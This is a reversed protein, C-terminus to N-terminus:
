APQKPTLDYLEESDESDESVSDERVPEGLLRDDPRSTQMEYMQRFVGDNALLEDHTGQEVLSGQDLVLLLDAKRITSLRHAIMFTTRGAMLRELADLIVAETKSDISSTPEDLILIPADKLFARAVSIRQREGGSLKAGREGLETDYGDPLDTIFDHANAARAAQVIDDMSADLRGYRINDAITGSFLLPDQLVISIQRRLSELTLDRIDVGDLLIRGNQAEYFRPLLSVLTTKGAGTQGVIGIVQGHAAEFSIEKLTEVRDEYSFSVDEFTVRGASREVSIAGPTDKIDIPSDMIEFVMRLSILMDQMHGVTTSISELPKYVGHLYSMVVILQGVSLREEHIHYFGVGLVLAAGVATITDVCLTFLAQRVTIRVRADLAREGQERYRKHEHNERGFAIIVRIMSLAEHIIGLTEGEMSRVKYLREQIYKVYYRVSFYLFPVVLLSLLALQWDLCILIYLMGVLTLVSHVMPPVTMVLRPGADGANNVVYMLMGSRRQDHRALSLRQVHAFLDSRIDLSMKLELKTTVYNDILDIVNHLVSILLGAIVAVLLMAVFSGQIPGLIYDLPAPLPKDGVVNDVLFAMPWPGLLGLAAGVVVLVLAVVALKWYPRLYPLL